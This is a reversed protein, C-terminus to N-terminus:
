RMLGAMRALLELRKLERRRERKREIVERSRQGHKWHMDRLKQLGEATRAGTSKGGHLQCRKKGKLAPKLCRSGRRTKAGCRLGSWHEGFRTARGNEILASVNDKTITKESGEM